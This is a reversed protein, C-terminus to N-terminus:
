DVWGFRQLMHWDEPNDHIRDALFSAWEQTMAAVQEQKTGEPPDIQPGFDMVTGWRSRARWRRGGYLREYRVFLPYLTNGTAIALAAPGPAVRVDHGWMKVPVGTGSLDRDALLAMVGGDTKAIRILQRFTSSGENGIVTMGVKERIAVFEDYVHRPELVEAVTRVLGLNRCTWAGVLDWNGSHSLVVVITGTSTIETLARDMGVTRMRADMAKPKLRGLELVECWYRAYSAMGKRSIRRLKRGSAGTVRHLNDELRRVAKGRKLWAIWAGLGAALRIVTIPTFKAIRTAVLFGNM